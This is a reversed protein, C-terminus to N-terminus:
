RKVERKALFKAPVGAWIEWDPIDKTAVSGAALVAGEGLTVGPLVVANTCVCAYKSIRTVYARVRQLSRPACASMTPADTQNSGSIVKGGSAVAAYDEIFTSGGGIGIHAFSAIHVYNGILLFEGGELKVFSDIRSGRGIQIRDRKTFVVHDFLESPPINEASLLEDLNQTDNLFSVFLDYQSRDYNM